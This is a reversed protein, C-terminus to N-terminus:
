KVLKNNAWTGTYKKGDKTTLSGKGEMVGNKWEGEYKYGKAWTYIGFGTAEGAKWTGDFKDGNAKTMKVKGELINNKWSGTFTTGNVFIFKGNGNRMNDLWEGTYSNGKSDIFTGYGNMKNNEWKGDYKSSDSWKYIGQGNFLGDKFEGVYKDGNAKILTGNGEFIDNKLKGKYVDKANYEAPTYNLVDESEAGRSLEYGSTMLQENFSVPILDKDSAVALLDNLSDKLKNNANALYQNEKPKNSKLVKNNKNKNEVLQNKDPTINPNEKEIINSPQQTKVKKSTEVKSIQYNDSTRNLPNLYIVSVIIASIISYVLIPKLYSEVSMQPIFLAKINESSFIIKIRDWLPKQPKLKAIESFFKREFDESFDEEKFKGLENIIKESFEDKEFDEEPIFKKNKLTM